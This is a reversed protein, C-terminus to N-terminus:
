LAGFGGKPAESEPNFLPLQGNSPSVRGRASPNMGFSALFKDLQQAHKNRAVWHPNYAWSGNPTPLMFGDGGTWQEPEYVQGAAAAAALKAEQVEDFAARRREADAMARDLAREAWVLRAYEQCVLSLAAQDIKSVLRLKELEPTLQKWFKKAEPLLHKPCSPIEIDPNVGGDDGKANARWSGRFALVNKPTPKPGREGM